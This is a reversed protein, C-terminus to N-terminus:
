SKQFLPGFCGSAFRTARVVPLSARNDATVSQILQRLRMLAEASSPKTSDYAPFNHPMDPWLDLMIDASKEAQQQGFDVIMDRLIERGGAQMYIPALGEYDHTIPSLKTRGFRGDPDLWEGFKLAMWGQVLDYQDNSTLSEGRAGIDTWPCIAICLCPQALDQAKLTQLLMLAMHGGTSDGAVTIKEPEIKTRLYQWANLADEAQAPHPHEPTLRYYPMFLPAQCHHALMAAFRRSIPGNFTYGGGHLYLVTIDTEVQEPTIWLGKPNQSTEVTVPYVDDTETLLSDFLARGRAIDKMQMANTFQTRWFRVGIEMSADWDPAIRRDLLYAFGVQLAIRNLTLFSRVRLSTPGTFSIKSM